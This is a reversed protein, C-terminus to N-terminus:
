LCTSRKWSANHNFCTEVFEWPHFDVWPVRNGGSLLQGTAVIADSSLGKEWQMCHLPCYYMESYHLPTYHLMTCCLASHQVVSVTVYHLMNWHLVNWSSFINKETCQLTHPTPPYDPPVCHFIFQSMKWPWGCALSALPGDQHRSESSQSNTTLIRFAMFSKSQLNNPLKQYKYCHIMNYPIKVFINQSYKEEFKHVTVTKWWVFSSNDSKSWFQAFLLGLM